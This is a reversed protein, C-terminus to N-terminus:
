LFLLCAEHSSVLLPDNKEELDEIFKDLPQQCFNCDYGGVRRKRM